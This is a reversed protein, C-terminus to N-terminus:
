KIIFNLIFTLATFFVIVASLIITFRNRNDQVAKENERLKTEMAVLRKELDADSKMSAQILKNMNKNLDDIKEDMKEIKTYIDDIRKEKFKIESQLETINRRNNQIQEEHEACPPNVDTMTMVSM